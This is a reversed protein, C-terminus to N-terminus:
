SGQRTQVACHTKLHRGFCYKMGTWRSLTASAKSLIWTCLCHRYVSTAFSFRNIHQELLVEPQSHHLLFGFGQDWNVCTEPLDVSQLIQMAPQMEVASENTNESDMLDDHHGEPQDLDMPTPIDQSPSQETDTAHQSPLRPRRRLRQVQLVQAPDDRIYDQLSIPAKRARTTPLGRSVM